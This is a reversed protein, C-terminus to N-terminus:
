LGQASASCPQTRPASVAPSCVNGRSGARPWSGPLLPSGSDSRLMPQGLHPLPRSPRLLPGEALLLAWFGPHPDPKVSPQQPGLPSWSRGQLLLRTNELGTSTWVGGPADQTDPQSSLFIQALLLVLLIPLFWVSLSSGFNVQWLLM